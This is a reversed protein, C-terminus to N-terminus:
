KLTCWYVDWIEHLHALQIYLLNWVGDKVEKLCIGVLADLLLYQLADETVSILRVTSAWLSEWNGSIGSILKVSWDLFKTVHPQASEQWCLDWFAQM